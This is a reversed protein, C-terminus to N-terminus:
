QVDVELTTATTATPDVVLAPWTGGQASKGGVQVTWHGYPVGVVLQGSANTTGLVHSAGTTCINDAAHTATLSVGVPGNVM